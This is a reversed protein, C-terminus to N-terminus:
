LANQGDFHFINSTPNAWIFNSQLCHSSLYYCVHISYFFFFSRIRLVGYKRRNFMFLYTWRETKYICTKRRTMCRRKKSKAIPSRVLYQPPWLQREHSVIAMALSSAIRRITAEKVDLLYNVLRFAWRYNRSIKRVNWSLQRSNGGDQRLLTFTVRQLLSIKCRFEVAVM